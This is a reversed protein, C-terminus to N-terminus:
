GEFFLYYVGYPLLQNSRKGKKCFLRLVNTPLYVFPSILISFLGLILFCLRQSLPLIIEKRIPLSARHPIGLACTFIPSPAPLQLARKKGVGAWTNWVFLQLQSWLFSELNLFGLPVRVRNTLAPNVSEQQNSTKCFLNTKAEKMNYKVGGLSVSLNNNIGKINKSVGVHKM